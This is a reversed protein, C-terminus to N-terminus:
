SCCSAAGATVRSRGALFAAPPRDLRDDTGEQSSIMNPVLRGVSQRPVSRYVRGMPRRGIEGHGARRATGPSSGRFGRNRRERQNIDAVLSERQNVNAM